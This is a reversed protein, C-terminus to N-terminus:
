MWSYVDGMRILAFRFFLIHFGYKAVSGVVEAEYGLLCRRDGRNFVIAFLSAVTRTKSEQKITLRGVDFPILIM